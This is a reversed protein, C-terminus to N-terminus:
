TANHKHYEADQISGFAHKEALYYKKIDNNGKYPLAQFFSVQSGECTFCVLHAAPFLLLKVQLYKERGTGVYLGM